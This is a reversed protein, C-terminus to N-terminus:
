TLKDLSHLCMSAFTCEQINRNGMYNNHCFLKFQFHMKPSINKTLSMYSHVYAVEDQQNQLLSKSLEDVNGEGMM